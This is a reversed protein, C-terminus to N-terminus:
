QVVELSLSLKKTKNYQDLALGQFHRWLEQRLTALEVHGEELVDQKNPAPKPSPSPNPSLQWVWSLKIWFRNSVNRLTLTILNYTIMAPMNINHIGHNLEANTNEDSDGSSVAPCAELRAGSSTHERYALPYCVHCQRGEWFMPPFFGSSVVPTSVSPRLM